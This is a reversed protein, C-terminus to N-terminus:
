VFLIQEPIFIYNLFVVPLLVRVTLYKCIEIHSPQSDKNQEDKDRAQAKGLVSYPLNLNFIVCENM